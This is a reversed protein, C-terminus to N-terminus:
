ATVETTESVVDDTSTVPVPTELTEAPEENAQGDVASVVASQSSKSTTDIRKIEVDAKAINEATVRAQNAEFWAKKTKLDEITRSIGGHSSPPPISLSLLASLTALPLNFKTEPAPGSSAAGNTAKGGGKKKGKGGVFYNDEEEGKKKRAVLIDANNEITRTELKPIGAIESRVAPASPTSVSSSGGGAKLSLFDILTQCDEIQTQYAPAEAEERIRLAIEKRKEEEAAARQAAYREAKKQREEQVKKFYRDGAERHLRMSEKKQTWADDLQVVLAKEEEFLKNRNAFIEDSEAKLTDLETKIAEYRESIAKSEPDDQM